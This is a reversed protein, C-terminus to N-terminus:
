SRGTVLTLIYPMGPGHTHICLNPARKDELPDVPLGSIKNTHGLTDGLARPAPVLLSDQEPFSHGGNEWRPPHTHTHANATGM